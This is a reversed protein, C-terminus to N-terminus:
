LIGSIENRSHQNDIWLFPGSNFFNRFM